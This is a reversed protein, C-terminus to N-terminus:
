KKVEAQEKEEYKKLTAVLEAKLNDDDCIEVAKRQYKLADALKGTEFFARAYTDVIAASKGECAEHAATAVRMALDLDRNVLGEDTLLRWAFENLNDPDKSGELLINEGIKKAADKDKAVSDFYSQILETVDAGCVSTALLFPVLLVAFLARYSQMKLGKEKASSRGNSQGQCAGFDCRSANGYEREVQTAYFQRLQLIIHRTFYVISTALEAIEVASRWARIRRTMKLSRIDCFPLLKVRCCRTVRNYTSEIPM